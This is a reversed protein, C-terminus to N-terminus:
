YVWLSSTRHKRSYAQAFHPLSCINDADHVSSLLSFFFSLPSVLLSLPSSLLTVLCQSFHLFFAVLSSFSLSVLLYSLLLSLACRKSFKMLRSIIQNRLISLWYSM